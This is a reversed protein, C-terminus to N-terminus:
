PLKLLTPVFKGSVLVIKPQITVLYLKDKVLASKKTTFFSFM